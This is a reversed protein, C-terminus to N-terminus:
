CRYKVYREGFMALFGLAVNGAAVERIQAKEATMGFEAYLEYHDAPIGAGSRTGGDLGSVGAM